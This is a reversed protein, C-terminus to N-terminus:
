TGSKSGAKMGTTSGGENQVLEWAESPVPGGKVSVHAVDIHQPGAPSGATVARALHGKRQHTSRTGLAAM